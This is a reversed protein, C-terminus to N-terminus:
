NRGLHRVLLEGIESCDLVQDVRRSTSQMWMKLLEEAARAHDLKPNVVLAVIKPSAQPTQDDTEDDTFWLETEELAWTGQGISHLLTYAFRWSHYISDSGEGEFLYESSEFKLATESAFRSCLDPSLFTPAEPVNSPDLRRYRSRFKCVPASLRNASSDLIILEDQSVWYIADQKFESGILLATAKDCKVAWGPEAHSGDPTQGTMRWCDWKSLSIRLRGDAIRNQEDTWIQGTPAYATIIAFEAPLEELASSGTFVTEFYAPHFENMTILRCVSPQVILTPLVMGVM